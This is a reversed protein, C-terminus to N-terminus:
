KLNMQIFKKLKQIDLFDNFNGAVYGMASYPIQLQDLLNEM